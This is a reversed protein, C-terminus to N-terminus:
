RYDKTFSLNRSIYNCVGSGSFVTWPGTSIGTDVEVVVGHDVAFVGGVPVPNVLCLYADYGEDLTYDYNINYGFMEVRRFNLSRRVIVKTEGYPFMMKAFGHPSAALVCFIRDGDHEIVLHSKIRNSVASLYPRGHVTYSSGTGECVKDLKAFFKKRKLMARLSRIAFIVAFLAAAIGAAALGYTLIFVVLGQILTSLDVVLIGLLFFSFAWVATDKLIRVFRNKRKSRVQDRDDVATLARILSSDVLFAVALSPLTFIVLMPLFSGTELEFVNYVLKKLCLAGLLSFIGSVIWFDVSKLSYFIRGFFDTEANSPYDNWIREHRSHDCFVFDRQSLVMFVYMAVIQVYGFAKPLTEEDRNFTLYGIEIAYVAFIIILVYCLAAFVALLIRGTREHFSKEDFSKEPELDFERPM